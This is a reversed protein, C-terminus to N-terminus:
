QFARTSRQDADRRTPGVRYPPPNDGTPAKLGVMLVLGLAGVRLLRVAASRCNRM